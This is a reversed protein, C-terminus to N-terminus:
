HQGPRNSFVDDRVSLSSAGPRSSTATNVDSHTSDEKLQPDGQQAEPAQVRIM